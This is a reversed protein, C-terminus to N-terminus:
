KLTFGYKEFIPKCAPSLVFKMFRAAEPNREGTKLLVCAQEVPKYSKPDLYVFKGKLDPAFVLAQALLAVEANGSQAFQAAQAINDAFVLKNKVKDYIGYYKLCEIARAGYPATEPKAIAIRAVSKDTLISIGKSVDLINSWLVLKGFAYTKVEGVAAGQSKLKDPYVKDSSMFVDFNGGNLIQQTLAGSAGLVIDIKTKPSQSHYKVKIEDLIYRLNGAAAIRVTQAELSVSLFLSILVLLKNM